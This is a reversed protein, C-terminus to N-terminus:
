KYSYTVFNIIKKVAGALGRDRLDSKRLLIQLCVEETVNLRHFQSTSISGKYIGGM